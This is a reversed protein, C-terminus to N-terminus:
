LSTADIADVLSLCKVRKATNIINQKENCTFCSSELVNQIDLLYDCYANYKTSNECGEFDKSGCQLLIDDCIKKKDPDTSMCDSEINFKEKLIIKNIGNYVENHKNNFLGYLLM